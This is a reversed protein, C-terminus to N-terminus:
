VLRKHRAMDALGNGTALRVAEILTAAVNPAHGRLASRRASMGLKSVWDPTDLCRELAAIFADASTDIILGNQEHDIFYRSAEANASSIVLMGAAMAEPIVLGWGAHETPYIFVDAEIFPRLRDPWRQFERDYRIVDALEPTAAVADDIVSQEPGSGSIVLEFVPGCQRLLRGFGERILPFNHRKQLGGSFLFRMRDRKPKPLEADLCVSLDEGYPVFHTNANLRRYYSHARDGIALVFDASWLCKGYYIRRLMHHVASRNPLPQEMWLGLPLNRKVERHYALAAQRWVGKIGGVVLIDPDFERLKGVAWEVVGSNDLDAPVISVNRSTSEDIAQWHSPRGSKQRCFIVAYEVGDLENVAQAVEVQFPSVQSTVFAIRMM